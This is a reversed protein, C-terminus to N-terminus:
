ICRLPWALPRRCCFFLLLWILNNKLATYFTPAHILEVYNALGVFSKETM